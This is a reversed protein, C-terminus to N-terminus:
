VPTQMAAQYIQSWIQTVFIETLLFTKLPSNLRAIHHKCEIIIFSHFLFVYQQIIDHILIFGQSQIQIVM